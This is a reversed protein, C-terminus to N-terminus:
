SGIGGKRHLMFGKNGMLLCNLEIKPLDESPNKSGAKMGVISATEAKPKVGGSV